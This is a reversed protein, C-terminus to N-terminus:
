EDNLENGGVMGGGGDMEREDGKVVVGILSGCM